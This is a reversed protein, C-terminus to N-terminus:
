FLPYELVLTRFRHGLGISVMLYATMVKGDGAVQVETSECTKLLSPDTRQLLRYESM